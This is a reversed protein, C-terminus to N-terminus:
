FLCAVLLIQSAPIPRSAGGHGLEPIGCAHKVSGTGQRTAITFVRGADFFSGGGNIGAINDAATINVARLHM